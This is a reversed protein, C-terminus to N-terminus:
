DKKTPKSLRRPTYLWTYLRRGYFMYQDVLWPLLPAVTGLAIMTVLTQVLPFHGGHAVWWVAVAVSETVTHQGMTLADLAGEASRDVDWVPRGHVSMWWPLRLGLLWRDADSITDADSWRRVWQVWQMKSDPQRRQQAWWASAAAGGPTPVPSRLLMACGKEVASALARATWFEADVALHADMQATNGSSQPRYQDGGCLVYRTKGLQTEARELAGRVRDDPVRGLDVLVVRTKSTDNDTDSDSLAGKAREETRRRHESWGLRARRQDDRCETALKELVVRDSGWLSVHAGERAVKRALARALESEDAGGVAVHVGRLKLRRRRRDGTSTVWGQNYLWWVLVGLVGLGIVWHMKDPYVFLSSALLRVSSSTVHGIAPM